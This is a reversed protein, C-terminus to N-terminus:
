SAKQTSLRYGVVLGLIWAAVALTVITSMSLDLSIM